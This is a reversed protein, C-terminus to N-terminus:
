AEPGAQSRGRRKGTAAVRGDGGADRGQTGDWGRGHGRGDQRPTGSHNLRALGAQHAIEPARQVTRDQQVDRTCRGFFASYSIPRRAQSPRSRRAPIERPAMIAGRPDWQTNRKM